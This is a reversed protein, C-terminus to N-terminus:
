RDETGPNARCSGDTRSNREHNQIFRESAGYSEKEVPFNNQGPNENNKRSKHESWEAPENTRETSNIGKKIFGGNKPNLNIFLFTGM